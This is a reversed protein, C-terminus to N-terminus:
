KTKKIQKYHKSEARAQSIEVQKSMTNIVLHSKWNLKKHKEIKENNAQIM